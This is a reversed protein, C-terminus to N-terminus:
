LCTTKEATRTCQCKIGLVSCLELAKVYKLIKGDNEHLRGCSEASTIVDSKIQHWVVDNNINTSGHMMTCIM